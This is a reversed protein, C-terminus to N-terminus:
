AREADTLIEVGPLERGEMFELSAGGGTSVHSVADQLGLETVAAASDGGGVVTTAGKRTAGAMAEAVARTGEAFPRLEFVGMPGNWVVTAASEIESAYSRATEPGIDLAKMGVPIEDRAVARTEAAADLEASVVVDQPLRLKDPAEDLLQTALEVREEEVLSDGTELGMGRFFTNAMAGGILLRDVRPLLARIVDIKGSIKAGGLVAVFPRRPEDLAGGLYELERSLLTGAAAKGGAARIARAVGHTTAHARHAAGFADNVYLDGFRALEDALSPDNAEERPDFRTNELLLVEGDELAEVAASAAEGSLDEVFAVPGNLLEALREAVPRLSLAVDPKGKPRGLHSLAIVRAGRELLHRLTPLTARIRTDDSVGGGEGLPVNFDVRLLVRRGRIEEDGLQDLRLKPTV